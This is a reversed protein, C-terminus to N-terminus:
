PDMPSPMFIEPQVRRQITRFLEPVNIRPVRLFMTRQTPDNCIYTRRRRGGDGGHADSRGPGGRRTQQISPADSFLHRARKLERGPKGTSNFRAFEFQSM